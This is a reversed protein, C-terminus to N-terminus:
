RDAPLGEIDDVALTLNSVRFIPLKGADGLSSFVSIDFVFGADERSPSRATLWAALTEALGCTMTAPPCDELLDREFVFDFPPAMVIPLTVYIADSGAVTPNVQYYYSVDIRVKRVETNDQPRPVGEFVKDFMWGIHEQLTKSRPEALMAVDFQKGTALLPTVPVAFRVRPTRYIFSPNTHVPATPDCAVNGFLNENRTVFAGGWVNQRNLINIEDFVVWRRREALAQDWTMYEVDNLQPNFWYYCFCRRAEGCVGAPLEELEWGEIEVKPLPLDPAGQCRRVTIVLNGGVKTESVVFVEEGNEDGSPAYDYRDCEWQSWLPAISSVINAFAALSGEAQEVDAGTAGPHIKPLSVLLDAQIADWNHDFEALAHFLDAPLTTKPFKSKPVNFWLSTHVTDNSGVAREYQYSYSWYRARQLTLPPTQQDVARWIEQRVLAPAVPYSRIPIPISIDVNRVMDPVLFTLWESASFEPSYPVDAISRELATVSFDFAVDLTQEPIAKESRFLFTMNSGNQKLPIRSTSLTYEPKGTNAGAGKLIPQGFLKPVHAEDQTFPSQVDVPFQLLVDTEYASSLRVKLRQLMLQRAQALDGINNDSLLDVTGAISEAITRKAAIIADICSAAGVSCNAGPGTALLRAPVLYQPLLVTDIANLLSKAWVDLDISSYSKTATADAGLQKNAYVRLPVDNKSIAFTALPPIAFFAPSSTDVQYNVLGESTVQVAWLRTRSEIEVEGVMARSSAVKVDFLASEFVQAFGRLTDDEFNDPFQVNIGLECFAVTMNLIPEVEHAAERVGPVDLFNTDVPGTRTIGFWVALPFWPATNTMSVNYRVLLPEIAAISAPWDGDATNALGHLLELIREVYAIVAAIDIEFRTRDNITTEVWALQRGWTLQYYLRRYTTLDAKVASRVNGAGGTGGTTYRSPDFRIAVILEAGGAEKPVVTYGANTSPWRELGILEDTYGLLSVSHYPELGTGRLAPLVNNNVDQTAMPLYAATVNGFGDRWEAGLELLGGVGRYPSLGPHPKWAQPPAAPSSAWLKYIPLLIDYWWANARPTIGGPGVRQQGPGVALSRVSGNFWANPRVYFSLLSFMYALQENFWAPNTGQNGMLNENPPTRWLSAGVHGAPVTPTKIEAGDEITIGGGAFMRVRPNAYAIMEPTISYTTAISALTSGSQVTHWFGPVVIANGAAVTVGPNAAQMDAATVGPYRAAVSAWGTDGALIQAQSGSILLKLPQEPAAPVRLTLNKLNAMLAASSVSYRRTLQEVTTQDTVNVSINLQKAARAVITMGTALPSTRLVRNVFRPVQIGTATLPVLITLVATGETSFVSDPLGVESGDATRKRYYLFYGGSRVQSAQWLLALTALKTGGNFMNPVQAPTPAAKTLDIGKAADPNNLTSLNAQAIFAGINGAGDSALGVARDAVKRQYLIQVEGLSNAATRLVGDLRGIGDPDTGDIEYTTPLPVGNPGIIRRVTVEIASAWEYGGLADLQQSIDTQTQSRVYLDLKPQVGRYGGVLQALPESFNWLVLTTAQGGGVAPAVLAETVKGLPFEAPVSSYLPTDFIESTVPMLSAKAFRAVWELQAAALKIEVYTEGADTPDIREVDYRIWNPRAGAGRKNGLTIRFSANPPVAQPQYLPLGFQQGTLYYLPLSDEGEWPTEDTGVFFRPKPLRLGPLMFRSAMGAVNRFGDTGHMLEALLGANITGVNEVTLTAGPVFTPPATVNARALDVVHVGYTAALGGLTDGTQTTFSIPPLLLQIGASVAYPDTANELLLAGPTTALALSNIISALSEGAVVTHTGGGPLSILADTPFIDPTYANLDGMAALYDRQAQETAYATITAVQDLYSGIVSVTYSAAGFPVTVDKGAALANDYAVAYALAILPLPPSMAERIGAVTEGAGVTYPEWGEAVIEYGERILGPVFANAMLLREYFDYDYDVGFQASISALSDDTVTTVRAGSSVMATGAQLVVGAGNTAITALPVSLRNALQVTTDGAVTTVEVSGLVDLSGQIAARAVIMFYDEFVFEAISRPAYTGAPYLDSDLPADVSEEVDNQFDVSLQSFYLAMDDHYEPPVLTQEKFVVPAYEGEETGDHVFRRLELEPIMPFVTVTPRDYQPIVGPVPVPRRRNENPAWLTITFMGKLMATVQESTFPSRGRPRATLVKLLTELEQKSVTHAQLQSRQTVPTGPNKLANIMWLLVAEALKDFDSRNLGPAQTVPTGEMFLMGVYYPMQQAQTRSLAFQPRFALWIPLRGDGNPDASLDIPNDWNLKPYRAVSTTLDGVGHAMVDGAIGHAPLGHPLAHPLAHQGGAGPLRAWLPTGTEAAPITVTESIQTSFSCNIDCGFWETGVRVSLEVNVGAEFTLPIPKFSEFVARVRAYAELMVNASIVAFNVRGQIRGVVAFSGELRYYLARQQDTASSFFGLVGELIGQFTLSLEARLIGREIIKGVGISLGVGAEIVPRFTGSGVVYDSPLQTATDGELLAFYFGGAGLFPFVQVAFSRSFDNNRPFGLDIRFNGNTYIDIAIVPITVSVAGFELQRIADPLRLEIQYVGVSETVKKYLIEFSFGALRPFRDGGLEIRVGAFNGNNFVAGMKLFGLMSFDIGLLWSSARDFQLANNGGVPLGSQGPQFATRMDALASTVTRGTPTTMRLRQGLALFDLSFFRATSGPMAPPQGGLDMSTTQPAGAGFATGTFALSVQRGPGIKYISVATLSYFGLNIPRPFTVTCGFRKQDGRPSTYVTFTLADLNINSLMSWPYPLERPLLNGAGVQNAMDAVFAVMDGITRNRFGFEFYKDLGDRHYTGTVGGIEGGIRTPGAPSTHEFRVTLRVDAVVVEGSIMFYNSASAPTVTFRKLFTVQVREVNLDGSGFDYRFVNLFTASIGFNGALTATASAYSASFDTLEISAFAMESLWPPQGAPLLKRMVDVLKVSNLSRAAFRWQGNTRELMVALEAIPPQGAQGPIVLLGEIHGNIGNAVGNRPQIAIEFSPDKVELGGEIVTWVGVMSGEIHIRHFAPPVLTVEFAAHDLSFQNQTGLGDPLNWNNPDVGGPLGGLKAITLGPKTCSFELLWRSAGASKAVAVDFEIQQITITGRASISIKPQAAPSLIRVLLSIKGISFGTVVEWSGDCTFQTTISYISKAALSFMISISTLKFGQASNFFAPLSNGVPINLLTGIDGPTLGVVPDAGSLRLECADGIHASGWAISFVVALDKQALTFTGTIELKWNTATDDHSCSLTCGIGTLTIAPTALMEWNLSQASGEISITAVDADASVSVAIATFAATPLNDVAGAGLTLNFKSMIGSINRAPMSYTITCKQPDDATEEFTLTVTVADQLVTGNGTLVVNGYEGAGRTLVANTLDIQTIALEGCARVYCEASNLETNISVTGAESNLVGNIADYIAALTM